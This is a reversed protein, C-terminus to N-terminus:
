FALLRKPNEVLMNNIQKNSVGSIKLMPIISRLIHSYGFGGYQRLDTKFPM